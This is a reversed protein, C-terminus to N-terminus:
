RALPEYMIAAIDYCTMPANALPHARAITARGPFRVRLIGEALM